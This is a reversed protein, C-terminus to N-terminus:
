YQGSLVLTCSGLITQISSFLSSILGRVELPKALVKESGLVAPVFALDRFNYPDYDSYKASVNELFFSLAKTRM